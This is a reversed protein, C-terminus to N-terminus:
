IYGVWCRFGIQFSDSVNRYFPGGIEPKATMIDSLFFPTALFTYKSFVNSCFKPRLMEGGLLKTALNPLLLAPLLLPAVWNRSLLSLKM